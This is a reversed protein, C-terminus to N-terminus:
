SRSRGVGSRSIKRDFSSCGTGVVGQLANNDIHFGDLGDDTCRELAVGQRRQNEQKRDAFQRELAQGTRAPNTKTRARHAVVKCVRPRDRHVTGAAARDSACIPDIGAAAERALIDSSARKSLLIPRRGSGPDIRHVRMNKRHGIMILALVVRLKESRWLPQQGVLFPVGENGRWACRHCQLLPARHDPQAPLHWPGTSFPQVLTGAMPM